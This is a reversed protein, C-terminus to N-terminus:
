KSFIVNIVILYMWNVKFYFHILYLDRLLTIKPFIALLNTIPIQAGKQLEDSCTCNIM